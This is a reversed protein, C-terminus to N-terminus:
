LNFYKLTQFDKSINIYKNSLDRYQRHLYLIFSTQAVAVAGVFIIIGFSKDSHLELYDSIGSM